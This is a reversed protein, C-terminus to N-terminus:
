KSRDRRTCYTEMFRTFRDIGITLQASVTNRSIGLHEAINKQSMGYVKRLTFIQRCRDPLSQIAKTMIELEQNRAVIEPVGMGGDEFESLDDQPLYETMAVSSHRASDLALNRATAFLFSKPSLIPHEERAKLARMYAEQIVDDINVGRPFRSQLWGRLMEEHPQLNKSFWEAVESNEPLM